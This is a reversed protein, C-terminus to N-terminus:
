EPMPRFRPALRTKSEKLVCFSAVIGPPAWKLSSVAIEDSFSYTDNQNNEKIRQMGGKWKTDYVLM